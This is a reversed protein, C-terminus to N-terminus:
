RVAAGLVKDLLEGFAQSLVGCRQEEREREEDGEGEGDVGAEEGPGLFARLERKGKRARDVALLYAEMLRVWMGQEGAGSPLGSAGAEEEAGEGELALAMGFEDTGLATPPRPAGTRPAAARPHPASHRMCLGVAALCAEVARKAEDSHRALRGMALTEPVSLVSPLHKPSQEPVPLVPPLCKPSQSSPLM